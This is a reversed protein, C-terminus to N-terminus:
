REALALLGTVSRTIAVEQVHIRGSAFGGAVLLAVLSDRDFLRHIGERAFAWHQMTDRHTVYAVLRGGPSLSRALRELMRGEGDSFYLMNLALVADFSGDTFSMDEVRSRVIRADGARRHRSLRSRARRVMTHSPDIGIVRCPARNLIEAMAAGTGCGADLITEGSRPALLDIALRTPKRNAVDMANGLVRGAFGHPRALQEAFNRSLGM